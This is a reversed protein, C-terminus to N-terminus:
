GGIRLFLQEGEDVARGPAQADVALLHAVGRHLIREDGGGLAADAHPDAPFVLAALEVAIEGPEGPGPTRM